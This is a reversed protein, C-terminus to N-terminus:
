AGADCSTASGPRRSHPPSSNACAARSPPAPPGAASSPFSLLLLATGAGADRAVSAFLGAVFQLPVVVILLLLLLVGSQALPVWGLQLTSLVASGM